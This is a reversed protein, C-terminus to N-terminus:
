KNTIVVHKYMKNHPANNSLKIIKEFAFKLPNMKKESIFETTKILEYDDLTYAIDVNKKPSYKTFSVVPNGNKNKRIDMRLKTQLFASDINKRAQNLKDFKNHEVAYDAVMKLSESHLFKAQFNTNYSTFHTNNQIRM